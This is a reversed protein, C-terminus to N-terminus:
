FKNSPTEKNGRPIQLAALVIRNIWGSSVIGWNEEGGTRVYMRIRPQCNLTLSVTESQILKSIPDCRENDFPNDTLKYQVTVAPTIGPIEKGDGKDWVTYNTCRKTRKMQEM